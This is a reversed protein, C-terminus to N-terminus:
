IRYHSVDKLVGYFIDNINNQNSPQKKCIVIFICRHKKKTRQHKLIKRLMQSTRKGVIRPPQRQKQKKNVQDQIEYKKDKCKRNEHKDLEKTSGHKEVCKM